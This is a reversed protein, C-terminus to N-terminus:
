FTVLIDEDRVVMQCALRWPPPVDNTEADTIQETTIKGAYRLVTKEKETLATGIPRRGSLVKVQVLCSGCEGNQCEFHVPIKHQQAVALLTHTDGAVAYVTIDRPLSPSSFTVNPM